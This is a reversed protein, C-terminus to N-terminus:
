LRGEFTQRFPILLTLPQQQIRMMRIMKRSHLLFRHQVSVIADLLADIMPCFGPWFMLCIVVTVASLVFTPYGQEHRCFLWLFFCLSVFLLLQHWSFCYPILCAAHVIWGDRVGRRVGECVCVCVNEKNEWEREWGILWDIICCVEFVAMVFPVCSLFDIASCVCWRHPDQRAESLLVSCSLPHQQSHNIVIHVSLRSLQPLTMSVIPAM